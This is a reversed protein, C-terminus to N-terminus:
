PSLLHGASRAIVANAQARTVASLTAERGGVPGLEADAVLGADTDIGWFARDSTTGPGYWVIDYADSGALGDFQGVVAFHDSWSIKTNTYKLKEFPTDEGVLARLYEDSGADSALWFLVEDIGDSSGDFNAFLPLDYGLRGRVIRPNSRQSAGGGYTIGEQMPGPNHWYIDAKADGNLSTSFPVAGPSPSTILTVAFAGGGTAVAFRHYTATESWWLIDDRGDGTTDVALAGDYHGSVAASVRNFGGTPAGLWLVDSPRGPGYWFVDDVDNGDFDGVIPYATGSINVSRRVFTGGPGGYWLWDTGPGPTYWMIDAAPGRGFQGVIPIFRGGVWVTRRTFTRDGDALWLRDTAVGPTYWLIDHDLGDGDFDAVLPLADGSATVVQEVFRKGSHEIRVTLPVDYEGAGAFTAMDDRLSLSGTVTGATQGAADVNVEVTCREAPALVSGSCADSVIVFPETITASGVGLPITGRNTIAV